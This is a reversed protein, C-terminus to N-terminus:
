GQWFRHSLHEHQSTAVYTPFRNKTNIQFNPKLKTKIQILSNNLNPKGDWYFIRLIRHLSVSAMFLLAYSRLSDPPLRSPTPRCEPPLRSPTPRCDPPLRSPTPRCDPPLHAATPLSDPPLRFATPLGDPPRRSPTPLGDPPLRSPTPLVMTWPSSLILTSM